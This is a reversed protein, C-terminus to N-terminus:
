NHLTIKYSLRQEDTRDESVAGISMVMDTAKIQPQEEVPEESGCGSFIVTLTLIVATVLSGPRKM